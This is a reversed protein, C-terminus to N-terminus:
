QRGLRESTDDTARRAEALQEPTMRERVLDRAQGSKEHGQRAARDFWVFAQVDNEPVGHGNAYMSALSYQATANGQEAAKSYWEVAKPDDEPVGEGDAYMRGLNNQAAPDGQEAARSFWEVAKADDEPVGDGNAYM